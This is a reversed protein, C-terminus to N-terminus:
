AVRAGTLLHQVGQVALLCWALQPALKSTRRPKALQRLKALSFFSLTIEIPIPCESSSM